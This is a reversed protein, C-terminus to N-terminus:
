RDRGSEYLKKEHGYVHQRDKAAARGRDSKRNKLCLEFREDRKENNAEKMVHGKDDDHM